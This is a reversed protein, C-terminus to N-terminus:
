DSWFLFMEVDGFSPFKESFPFDFVAVFEAVYAILIGWVPFVNVAFVNSFGDLIVIKQNSLGSLCFSGLVDKKKM